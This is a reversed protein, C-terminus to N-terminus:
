RNRIVMRITRKFTCGLLIIHNLLIFNVDNLKMNLIVPQKLEYIYSLLRFTQSWDLLNRTAHNASPTWGLSIVAEPVLEEISKIFIM